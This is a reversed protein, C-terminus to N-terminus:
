VGGGRTAKVYGVLSLGFDTGNAVDTTQNTLICRTGRMLVTSNVM